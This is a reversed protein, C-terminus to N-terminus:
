RQGGSLNLGRSGIMTQDGSPLALIDEGLCCLRIVENYWDPDERSFGCIAERLTGSPLWSSQECYAIRKSAVSITGSAVPLEGLLAKALITKGSGVPGACTVISGRKVVLDINRLVPPMSSSPQIIVDEIRIVPPLDAASAEAQKLVLRQDQRPPQLRYNQIRQFAALSGVAQPVITM